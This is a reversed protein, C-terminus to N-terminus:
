SVDEKQDTEPADANGPTGRRLALVVLPVATALGLGLVVWEASGFDGDMAASGFHALLFSAPLIGAMTALGFRWFHLRSLGATYSMADFSVFPLLRSVFVTLTLANQSGLLGYDAKDGLLREVPGRGLRRAILFAMIAGIEAGLAVYVMGAYHGYAAGSALAIPASPIPSAVVAATMLAIVALPGWSGASAVWAEITTRDIAGPLWDMAWALILLAVFAAAIWFGARHLWADRVSRTRAGPM